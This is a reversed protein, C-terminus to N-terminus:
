NKSEAVQTELNGREFLAIVRLQDDGINKAISDASQILRTAEEKKGLLNNAHGLNILAYGEGPVYNLKRSIILAEEALKQIEGPPMDVVLVLDNLRNVRFTDQQPHQSLEKKIKESRLGQAGVPVNLCLLVTLFLILKM